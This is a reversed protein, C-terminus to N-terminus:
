TESGQKKLAARYACYRKLADSGDSPLDVGVVKAEPRGGAAKVAAVFREPGFHLSLVSAFAEGAADWEGMRKWLFTAYDMAVSIDTPDAEVARAYHFKAKDMDGKVDEL